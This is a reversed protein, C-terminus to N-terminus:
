IRKWTGAHRWIKIKEATNFKLVQKILSDYSKKQRRIYIEVKEKNTMKGYNKIPLKKGALINQLYNKPM